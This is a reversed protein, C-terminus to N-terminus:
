ELNKSNILLSFYFSVPLFYIITIWNNFFNGSPFFPFMNASIISLLSIKFILTNSYESKNKIRFILFFEKLLYFYILFLFISGAIGLEVFFQVLINHPHTSCSSISRYYKKNKCIFRFSKFGHGFMPKDLIMKYSAVYLEHHDPTFIIFNEIPKFSQVQNNNIFFFASKIMRNMLNSNLYSICIIIPFLFLVLYIFKKRQLNNLFINYLICFLIIAFATREGSYYVVVIVSLVFIFFFKHNIKLYFYLGILLFLLRSLFSGLILEEGFFSSVRLTNIQIIADKSRHIEYGFLNKDFIIQVFSDFVLILFTLSLFYFFFKYFNKNLSSLYVVYLSFFLFRIYFISTKLSYLIDDTNFSNAIIFFYFLIFLRTYKLDFYLFSKKKYCIYLYYFAIVSIILDPLFPGTVIAIPILYVLFSFFNIENTKVNQNLYKSLIM